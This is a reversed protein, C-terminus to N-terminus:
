IYRTGLTAPEVRRDMHAPNCARDGDAERSPTFRMPMITVDVSSTADTASVPQEFGAVVPLGPGVPGDPDLGLAPESPGVSPGEGSALSVGDLANSNVTSPAPGYWNSAVKTESRGTPSSWILAPAAGHGFVVVARPVPL